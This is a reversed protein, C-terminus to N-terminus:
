EQKTMHDIHARLSNVGMSNKASTTFISKLGFLQLQDSVSQVSKDIELQSLKDCKTMIVSLDKSCNSIIHIDIDKLGIKTDILIYLQKMQVRNMTLYDFILGEWENQQMKSAKSYGYGPLDLLNMKNGVSFVNITRTRGPTKSVNAINKRVIANIISSKGVNSRGYFVVEPKNLEERCFQSINSISFLFDCNLDFLKNM